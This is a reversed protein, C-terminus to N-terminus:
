QTVELITSKDFGIPLNSGTIEWECQWFPYSECYGSEKQPDAKIQEQIIERVTDMSERDGLTLTAHIELDDMFIAYTQM